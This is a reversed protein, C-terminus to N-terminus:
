TEEDAAAQNYDEVPSQRQERIQLPHTPITKDTIRNLTVPTVAFLM